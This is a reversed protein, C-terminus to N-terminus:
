ALNEYGGMAEMLEVAEAIEDPTGHNRIYTWKELTLGGKQQANAAAIILDLMSM